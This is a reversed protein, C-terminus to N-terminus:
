GHTGGTRYIQKLLHMEARNERRQIQQLNASESYSFGTNAQRTLQELRTRVDDEPLKFIQGPGGHGHAVERFSLTQETPHRKNWFDNLCYTFLEASIEPKEERRFVYIPEVRGKDTPREGVRVLLELEILPCDLNDELVEGKRGRTPIYTHLFTEFHQEITVPSLEADQRLAEKHLAGLIITPVIEPEHWRNLLFDWALLPNATDTALKWHILWLTRIDELFPDFGREGLLASGFETLAHGAGRAAPSAVGAAQMWFRISRTMNKGVGLDVMARDEDAFLRQDDALARAAKPLWTYRCPFTEHGSIRYSNEALAAM